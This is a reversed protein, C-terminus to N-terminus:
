MVFSFLFATTQFYLTNNNFLWWCLEEAILSIKLLQKESSKWDETEGPTLESFILWATWILSSNFGHLLLSVMFHFSFVGWGGVWTEAAFSGLLFDVACFLCLSISFLLFITWQLDSMFYGRSELNQQLIINNGPPQRWHILSYWGLHFGVPFFWLILFKIM